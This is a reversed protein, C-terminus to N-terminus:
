QILQEIRNGLCLGFIILRAVGELFYGEFSKVTVEVLKSTLLVFGLSGRFLVRWSRRHWQGFWSQSGVWLDELSRGRDFGLDEAAFSTFSCERVLFIEQPMYRM